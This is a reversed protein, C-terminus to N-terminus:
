IYITQARRLFHVLVYAILDDLYYSPKQVVLHGQRGEMVRAPDHGPVVRPSGIVIHSTRAPPTYAPRTRIFTRIRERVRVHGRPTKEMCSHGKSLSSKKYNWGSPEAAANRGSLPDPGVHVYCSRSIFSNPRNLRKLLSFMSVNHFLLLVLKSTQGIQDARSQMQTHSNAPTCSVNPNLARHGTWKRALIICSMALSFSLHFVGM